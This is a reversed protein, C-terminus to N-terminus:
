RIFNRYARCLSSSSSHRHCFLFEFEFLPNGQSEAIRGSAYEIVSCAPQTARAVDICKKADEMRYTLLHEHYLFWVILVIPSVCRQAHRFVNALHVWIQVAAGPKLSTQWIVPDGRSRFYSILPAVRLQLSVLRENGFGRGLYLRRQSYEDSCHSIM